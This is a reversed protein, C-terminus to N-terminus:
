DLRKGSQQCICCQDLGCRYTFETAYKPHPGALLIRTLMGALLMLTLIPVCGDFDDDDEDLCQAAVLNTAHTPRQVEPFILLPTSDASAVHKQMRHTM